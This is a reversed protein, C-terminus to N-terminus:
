RLNMRVSMLVQSPRLQFQSINTQISSIIVQEYEKMNFINNWRLELDIKRKGVTHRYYMDLFRNNFKQHSITYNSWDGSINISGNKLLYASISATQNLSYTSSNTAKDKRKTDSYSISYGAILWDLMSNDIKAGITQTYSKTKLLNDNLLNTAVSQAYNYNIGISTALPKIIKAFRFFATNSSNNNDKLIATTIQQGNNAITKSLMINSKNYNYNYGVTADINYLLNKYGVRGGAAYTKNEQIPTNYANFDLASFVFGPYMNTLSSYRNLKAANASFTFKKVGVETFLNPQFLFKNLKRSYNNLNDQADIINNSFPLNMSFRFKDKKYNVGLSAQSNINKYQLNNLWPVDLQQLINQPQLLEIDTNLLENAYRFKIEPTFTLQNYTLSLNVTNTTTFSNSKKFQAIGVATKMDKNAFTLARLSDVHYQEPDNVYNIFSQFNAVYKQKKDLPILTSISNQVSFGNANTQQYTPKNDILLQARTDNNNYGFTLDNKFFNNKTNRNVSLTAGLKRNIENVDSKRLYTITNIVAGNNDLTSLTNKSSGKLDLEQFNYQLNVKTEWDKKLGQLYNASTAVSKNFWYRSQKIASPPSVASVNLFSGTANEQSNGMFGSLNIFNGTESIIDEGTNNTKVNFLTQYKKSFLMPTLKANWLFPSLGLGLSGTGTWTIDKKLKINIGANESPVKSKMMKVPQNNEIVELKSVDKFPISNPIIGYRGQMLDKGEVTFQNIDKGQYKIKGGEDIELGPMRKIVDALTRDNKNSFQEVDHAITDGRRFVMPDKVIVEELITPKVSPTFQIQQSHNKIIKTQSEYNLLNFKVQVSDLESQFRISFVGKADTMKFAIVKSSNIPSIIISANALAKDEENKVNGTITTQAYLLNAMYMCLLLIIWKQM